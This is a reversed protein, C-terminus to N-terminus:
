GQGAAGREALPLKVHFTAGKGAESEVSVSGGFNDAFRKVLALGIGSGEKRSTQFPKFLRELMEPPIGPGTDAVSIIGFEAERRIGITIRGGRGMAQQANLVLNMLIQRLAHPDCSVVADTGASVALETQESKLLGEMVTRLGQLAEVLSVAEAHFAQAKEHALYDQVLRQIRELESDITDATAGVRGADAANKRLSHIQFRLAQLPNRIEHALVAATLGREALLGMQEMEARERQRAASGWMHFALVGALGLILTASATQVGVRWMLKGETQWFRKWLGKNSLEIYVVGTVGAETRIPSLIRNTPDAAVLSEAETISRPVPSADDRRVYGGRGRAYDLFCVEMVTNDGMIEARLPDLMQESKWWNSSLHIKVREALMSAKENVDREYAALMIWFTWPVTLVAALLIMGAAAWWKRSIGLIRKM